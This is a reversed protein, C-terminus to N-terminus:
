YWRCYARACKETPLAMKCHKESKIRAASLTKASAFYMSGTTMGTVRCTFMGRKAGITRCKRKYSLQCYDAQQRTQCQLVARSKAQAFSVHSRGSFYHGTKTNFAYCVYYERSPPIHTPKPIYPKKEFLSCGSLLLVFITMLMWISQRM